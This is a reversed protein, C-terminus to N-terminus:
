SKKIESVLHLGDTLVPTADQPKTSIQFVYYLLTVVFLAIYRSYLFEQHRLFIHIFAIVAGYIIQHWVKRPSSKPDTIMLFLFILGVTGLEPGFTYVLDSLNKPAYFVNLSFFLGGLYALSIIWSKALWVAAIGFLTVHLMPYWHVMYEDPWAAFWHIPFFAISATIAFNTPNFLHREQSARFLYKSAVAMLAVAGYFWWLHSKLLVLLGACEAAASFIRDASKSNKYKDSFRFLILELSIACFMGFFIQLYTRQLGYFLMTSAVLLIHSGTLFWRGDVERHAIRKFINKKVNNM